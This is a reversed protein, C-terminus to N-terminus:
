KIMSGVTGPRLGDKYIYQDGLRSADSKPNRSAINQGNSKL